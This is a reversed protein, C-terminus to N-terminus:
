MCSNALTTGLCILLDSMKAADFAKDLIDAELDDCFNIITDCLQGKCGKIECRRGTRHSLGCKKCKKMFKPFLIDSKGFDAVEELYMDGIDDCVYYPRNYTANCKECKEIFVNGHLESIKDQPVGSLRHLGDCNQSILYKIFGDDVLQRIAEHTFTPRLEEYDLQVDDEEIDENVNKTSSTNKKGVSRARKAPSPGSDENDDVTIDARDEETWKGGKGRFDGMGAATSIGAGTFFICSRSAKILNSVHKAKQQICADDDFIEETKKADKIMAKELVNLTLKKNGIESELPLAQRANTKQKRKFSASVLSNWCEPHFAAEGNSRWEVCFTGDFTRKGRKTKPVAAKVEVRAMKEDIGRSECSKLGCLISAM